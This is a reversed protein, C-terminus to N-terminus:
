RTKTMHMSLLDFGVDDPAAPPGLLNGFRTVLFGGRLPEPFDDGCWISGAPSSHADLTYLGEPKGGGAPGLNAVPLTFELGPPSPAHSPLPLKAEGALECVPIPLRLSARESRLGGGRARQLGARQCVHFSQGVWGVRVRLCQPNRARLRRDKAARGESRSALHM